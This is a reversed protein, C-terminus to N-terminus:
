PVSAPGDIIGTISFSGADASWSLTFTYSDSWPEVAIAQNYADDVTADLEGVIKINWNSNTNTDLWNAFYWTVAKSGTLAGYESDSYSTILTEVTEAQFYEVVYFKILVDVKLTDLKFEQGTGTWSVTTKFGSVESEGIYWAMPMQILDGNEDVFQTEMNASVGAGIFPFIVFGVMVLVLVGVAGLVIIKSKSL